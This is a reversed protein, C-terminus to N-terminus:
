DSGRAASLELWFTSGRGPESELGVQGGMREAAKKVIALGIGTGEYHNSVRQFLEFIKGHQDAAIGIGNDRVSIRVREQYSEASVVVHPKVGSPVFKIANGLLNSLCQTLAAENALVPPFPGRLEIRSGADHFAPYSEIIDALLKEVDVVDLPFEARVIRSFSLVDQILRDLREAARTIRRLYLQGNDDLKDSYDDLLLQGYGQLSRLPGRMDHVISYSLGELEAVIERLKATREAVAQELHAAHRRLEGQAEALAQEAEKRETIDEAVAVARLWQGSKDRIPVASVAMTGVSGDFRQFQLECTSQIAGTRLAVSIPWEEPQLPQGDSPRWALYQRYQEFSELPTGGRWMSRLADNLILAAGSRDVVMVGVPLHQLIVELQTREQEVAAFALRLQEQSAHLAKLAQHRATIDIIFALTAPGDPLDIQGVEAHAPFRTGDCRLAMFEYSRPAPEGAARGEVYAQIRKRDEPAIVDLISRGEFADHEAIGFCRRYAPNIYFHRGGRAMGIPVPAGAVLARFRAESQRLQEETKKRETIDVFAGLCGRVKGAEDFLPVVYEYLTVATGDPFHVSVEDGIIAVGLRAARQMPLDEVTLEVGERFVRFPLLGAEPGTKSANADRPLRLLAAGAPNMTMSSCAADRAVFVGVPLLDMLVQLEELRGRLEANLHRVQQEAERRVTSLDLHTRIRALLEGASFPKTLYDDAKAVAAETRANDTARASLLIIPITQTLPDARLAKVLALGDLRPMMVDCLLLAPAETRASALAAEGDPVATVQYGASQLLRQIYQRMDGNDDAVLIRATEKPPTSGAAAGFRDADARPLWGEVEIIAARGSARRDIASGASVIRDKPLHATGLPVLVTFKSGAGEISEVRIEGGHLHTLEKVLALGIGTGEYSRGRAGRVRHFRSFLQPLEAAPIGSGSDHVTLVATKGQLHLGIEIRGLLTFKFANSLLNFVIKEWLDRDVYALEPSPPCNVEFALAARDAVPRFASALEATFSGLDVPEYTAYVRGAELRSFDLLTNVLRLLRLGNRHAMEALCRGADSIETRDKLLEELPGLLLTLPTRFEHSVNSFFQTKARDLEALAEARQREEQYAHANILASALHRAVLELFGRYEDDFRLRPSIGAVLFGLPLSRGSSSPLPVVFAQKTSDDKWVGAPLRGLQDTRCDILQGERSTLCQRFSWPDPGSLLSILDPAAPGGKTIGTAEGLDAEEGSASLLYVLAFPIDQQNEALTTAAVRCAEAPSKGQELSRQALDRLTRLRRKGVVKGTEETCACFIGHVRGADNIIPSYSWTFYTEEIFHNRQMVLLTEDNWTARGEGLVVAADVGVVEWIEAWVERASRGLATPHRAGLVPIYADNYLGTLESGWWVFMPYRSGIMIRVATRLSQEWQTIPGLPTQAWDFAAIRKAM